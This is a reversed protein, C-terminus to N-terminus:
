ECKQVAEAQHHYSDPYSWGVGFGLALHKTSPELGLLLRSPHVNFKRIGRLTDQPQRIYTAHM